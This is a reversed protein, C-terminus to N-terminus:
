LGKSASLEGREGEVVAPGVKSLEVSPGTRGVPDEVRDDMGGPEHRVEQGPYVRVREPDGPLLVVSVVVVVRHDDLRWLPESSRSIVPGVCVCRAIFLLCDDIM